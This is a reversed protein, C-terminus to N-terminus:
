RAKVLPCNASHRVENSLMRVAMGRTGAPLLIHYIRALQSSQSETGERKYANGEHVGEEREDM